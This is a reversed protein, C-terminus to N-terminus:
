VIRQNLETGVPQWKGKRVGVLILQEVEEACLLDLILSITHCINNKCIPSHSSHLIMDM